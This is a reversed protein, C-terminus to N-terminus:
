ARIMGSNVAPSMDEGGQGTEGASLVFERWAAAIELFQSSIGALGNGDLGDIGTKFVLLAERTASNVGITADGTGSWFLNGELLGRYVQVEHEEPVKGLSTSLIIDDRGSVADYTLTLVMDDVTLDVPSELTDDPELGLHKSLSDILGNFKESM